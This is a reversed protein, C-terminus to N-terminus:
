LYNRFCGYFWSHNISHIFSRCECVWVKWLWWFLHQYISSLLFCTHWTWCLHFSIYEWANWLILFSSFHLWDWLTKWATVGCVVDCSLISPTTTILLLLYIEIWGFDRLIDKNSCICLFMCSVNLYLKTKLHISSFRWEEEKVWRDLM